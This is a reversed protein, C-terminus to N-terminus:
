EARLSALIDLRRTRLAPVIGAVLGSLSCVLLPTLIGRLGIYPKLHSAESINSSILSCIASSTLIAGVVGIVAGVLGFILSEALIILTIDSHRAGMAIRVAFERTRRIVNALMVNVVGISAVLICFFAQVAGFVMFNSVINKRKQIKFQSSSLFYAEPARCEDLAARLTKITSEMNEPSDWSVAISEVVNPKGWLIQSVFFPIIVRAEFRRDTEPPDEVIGVINFRQIGIRLAPMEELRANLLKSASETIMCELVMGDRATASFGRGLVPHYLPDIEMEASIGEIPMYHYANNLQVHGTGFYMPSVYRAAQVESQVYKVDEMTIDATPRKKLLNRDPGPDPLVLVRNGMLRDLDESLNILAGEGVFFTAALAFSGIAMTLLTLIHQLRFSLVGKVVIHILSFWRALSGDSKCPPEM